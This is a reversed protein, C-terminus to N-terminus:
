YQISINPIEKKYIAKILNQGLVEDIGHLALQKLIAQNVSRMHEVNDLRAQEAIKEAEEKARTEREIREREAQIALQKNHEAEKAAQEARESALAKDIEAQRAQQEAQEKLRQERILAQEAEYKLNAERQEAEIKERQARDAEIRAKEEAERQAKLTAELVIKADREIQRQKEEAEIRIREAEIQENAIRLAEAQAAESSKAEELLKNLLDITEYKQLKAKDQFEMFSDDIDIAKIHDLANQIDSSLTSVFDQKMSNIRLEINIIRQKEADEWDTLPQRIRDREADLAERAFKREVDIKSTIVTYQEKLKKGEADIATKSRAVKHALSAVLDRDKKKTFDWVIGEIKENVQDRISDVVSKIGGNTNFAQVIVNQEIVQIENTM